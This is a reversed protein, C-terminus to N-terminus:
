VAKGFLRERVVQHCEQLLFWFFYTLTGTIALLVTVVAATFDWPATNLAEFYPPIATALTLAYYSFGFFAFGGLGVEVTHRLFGLLTTSKTSAKTV